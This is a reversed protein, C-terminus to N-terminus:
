QYDTKLMLGINVGKLKYYYYYEDSKDNCEEILEKPYSVLLATAPNRSSNIIHETKAFKHSTYDLGAGIYKNILNNRENQKSCLTDKPFNAKEHDITLLLGKIEPSMDQTVDQPKYLYGVEKNDQVVVPLIYISAGRMSVKSLNNSKATQKKYYLVPEFAHKKFLDASKAIVKNFDQEYADIVEKTFFDRYMQYIESLKVVSTARKKLCADIYDIWKKAAQQQFVRELDKYISHNNNHEKSPIYIIYNAKEEQAFRNVRGLRQLFNEASTMITKMKSTSINMSAQLVPGSRISYNTQAAGFGFNKFIKKTIEGRDIANYKSHFCIPSETSSNKLTFVTSQQAMKATNFVFIEKAALPANIVDKYNQDDIEKNEDYTLSVLEIEFDKKNFTDIYEVAKASIGLFNLFAYNPTASVMLTNTQLLHKKIEILEKFLLVHGPINAFEHYEDFILFSNILKYFVDTKNHTLLLSNVQDITTIVIESKYYQSESMDTITKTYPDYIKRISGCYLQIDCGQLYDNKIEEFLSECIVTRPAIIFVQNTSQISNKELKEKIYQLFIKTKGCGAPGFLVPIPNKNEVLAQCVDLQAQDRQKNEISNDLNNKVSFREIMQEINEKISELPKDDVKFKETLYIEITKDQLMKDLVACDLESIVRDALVMVHKLLTKRSEQLYLAANIETSNKQMNGYEKYDPTGIKDVFITNQNNKIKEINSIAATLFSSQSQNYSLELEALEKLFSHINEILLPHTNKLIVSDIINNAFNFYDDNKKDKIRQAKAHHWYTLYLSIEYISQNSLENSIPSILNSKLLAWSVENHRPYDKFSFKSKDKDSLQGDKIIHVGDDLSANVFDKKLLFEQFVNDIKGLDHFYSSLTLIEESKKPEFFDSSINVNKYLWKAAISIAFSHASLPQKKTNALITM